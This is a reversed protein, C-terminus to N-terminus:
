AAQSAIGNSTIQIFGDITGQIVNAKGGKGRLGIIVGVGDFMPLRMDHVDGDIVKYTKGDVLSSLITFTDPLDGIQGQAPKYITDFVVAVNQGSDLINSAIAPDTTESYSYTIHYNSPIQRDFRKYIKTYDYWTIRDFQTFLEPHNIEWPIDSAVNLRVACNLGKRDAQRQAITLDNVLMEMFQTRNEFYLKTKRDRAARVPATVSRGAYELVCAQECKGSMSCVNYGSGKAPRLSLGFVLFGKGNSKRLKTNSDGTSLLELRTTMMPGKLTLRLSQKVSISM